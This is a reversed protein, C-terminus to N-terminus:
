WDLLNTSEKIIVKNRNVFVDIVNILDDYSISAYPYKSEIINKFEDYFKDYAFQTSMCWEEDYNTKGWISICADPANDRNNLLIPNLKPLDKSNYYKYTTKHFRKVSKEDGDYENLHFKYWHDFYNKFGKKFESDNNLKNALAKAEKLIESQFVKINIEEKPEQKKKFKDLIGENMAEFDISPM